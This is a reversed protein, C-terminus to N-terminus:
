AHTCWSKRMQQMYWCWTNFSCLVWLVEFHIWDILWDILWDVINQRPISAFIRLISLKFSLLRNQTVFPGAKTTLSRYIYTYQYQAQSSPSTAKQNGWKSSLTLRAGRSNNCNQWGPMLAHFQKSAATQVDEAAQDVHESFELPIPWSHGLTASCLCTVGHPWMVHMHWVWRILQKILQQLQSRDSTVFGLKCCHSAYGTVTQTSRSATGLWVPVEPRLCWPCYLTHAM